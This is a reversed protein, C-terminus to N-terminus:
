AHTHDHDHAYLALADGFLARIEGENRIQQPAGQCCIHGNLCLVRDASSMVLHLDHSVILATRRKNKKWHVIRQYIERAGIHDLGSVPEDLVLIDPHSLLARAFLVRQWEGGSLTSILRHQLAELKSNAVESELACQSPKSPLIELFRRVTLPFFVPIHLSQPVYGFNLIKHYRVRGEFPSVLGMIARLLSTKGAGNPGIITIIENDCLEFDINKLAERGNLRVTLNEISILKEM